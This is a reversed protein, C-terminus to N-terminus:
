RCHVQEAAFGDGLWKGRTQACGAEAFVDPLFMQKGAALRQALRQLLARQMGHHEPAWGTYALRGQRPEQGLNGIGMELRNGGHEGPDLLNALRHLDGLLLRHLVAPPGDQEDVFHVAEVLGLLIGEQGIHFVARQNKDAGRGFVGREFEVVGQERPGADIHQFAQVFRGQALQHRARQGLGLAKALEM